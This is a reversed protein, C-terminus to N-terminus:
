GDCLVLAACGCGFSSPDGSYLMPQAARLLALARKIRSVRRAASFCDRSLLSGAASENRGIGMSHCRNVFIVRM